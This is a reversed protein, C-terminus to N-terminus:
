DPANQDGVVAIEGKLMNVTARDIDDVKSPMLYTLEQEAMQAMEIAAVLTQRYEGENGTEEIMGAHAMIRLFRQARGKVHEKDQYLADWMLGNEGDPRGANGLKEIGAVLTEIFLSESIFADRYTSVDMPLRDNKQYFFWQLTLWMRAAWFVVDGVKQYRWRGDRMETLLWRREIYPALESGRQRSLVYIFNPVGIKPPIGYAFGDKVILTLGQANLFAEFEDHQMESWGALIKAARLEDARLPRTPPNGCIERYKVLMGFVLGMDAAVENM